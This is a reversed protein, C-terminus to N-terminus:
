QPLVPHTPHPFDPHDRDIGPATSAGPAGAPLQGGYSTGTALSRAFSNSNPGTPAYPVDGIPFFRFRDRVAKEFACVGTPCKDPKVVGNSKNDSSNPDDRDSNEAKRGM